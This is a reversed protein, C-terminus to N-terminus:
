ELSEEAYHYIERIEETETGDIQHVILPPEMHLLPKAERQAEILVLNAPKKVTPYIMRLRKPTLRVQDMQEMIELLRQAPYIVSMRGRVRLVRFAAQLWPLLGDEDQHRAMAKNEAPNKLSSGPTGYPPNCIVHDIQGYGIMAPANVVDSAHVTMRHGLGNLEANRRALDAMDSQIEFAHYTSGKGRGALLLPLIGTGTGFDAVRDGSHVHAFDALLVADMGFRFGNKKQIISFGALQLDEMVEDTELVFFLRRRVTGPWPSLEGLKAFYM